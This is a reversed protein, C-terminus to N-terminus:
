KKNKKNNGKKSKKKDMKKVEKELWGWMIRGWIAGFISFTILTYITDETFLSRFVNQLDLKYTVFGIILRVIITVSVGWSLVGYKIVYNLKGKEYLEKFAINEQTNTKKKAM